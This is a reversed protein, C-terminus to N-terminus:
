NHNGKDIKVNTDNVVAQFQSAAAQYRETNARANQVARELEQKKKLADGLPDDAAVPQALGGLFAAVVFAVM